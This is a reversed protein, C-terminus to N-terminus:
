MLCVPRKSLLFIYWHELHTGHFLILFKKFFASKNAYNVYFTNTTLFVTRWLLEESNSSIEDTVKQDISSGSPHTIYKKLLLFINM